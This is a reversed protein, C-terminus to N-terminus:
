FIYTSVSTLSSATSTAPECSTELRSWASLRHRSTPSRGQQRSSSSTSPNCSPSSRGSAGGRRRPKAWHRPPGPCAACAARPTERWLRRRRRRCRPSSKCCGQRASRRWSRRRHRNLPRHLRCSLTPLRRQDACRRAKCGVTGGARPRRIRDADHCGRVTLIADGARWVEEDLPNLAQIRDLVSRPISKRADPTFQFTEGRPTRLHKYPKRRENRTHGAQPAPAPTCPLPLRRSETCPM